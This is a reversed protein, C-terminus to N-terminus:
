GDAPVHGGQQTNQKPLADPVTARRLWPPTARTHQVRDSGCRPCAELREPSFWKATCCCCASYFLKTM